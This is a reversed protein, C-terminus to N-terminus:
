EINFIMQIKGSTDPPPSRTCRVAPVARVSTWPTWLGPICQPCWSVCWVRGPWCSGPRGAAPRSPRRHASVGALHLQGKKWLHVLLTNYIDIPRPTMVVKKFAEGWIPSRDANKRPWTEIEPQVSEPTKILVTWSDALTTIVRYYSHLLQKHCGFHSGGGENM